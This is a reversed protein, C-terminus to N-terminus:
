LHFYINFLVSVRLGDTMHTSRGIDSSASPVPEDEEPEIVEKAGMLVEHGHGERSTTSAQTVAVHPQATTYIPPNILGTISMSPRFQPLPYKGYINYPSSRRQIHRPSSGQGARIDFIESKMLRLDDFQLNIESVKKNNAKNDEENKQVNDDDTEQITEFKYNSFYEKFSDKQQNRSPSREYPGPGWISKNTM